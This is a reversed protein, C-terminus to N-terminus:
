SWCLMLLTRRTQARMESRVVLQLLRQLQQPTQQQRRRSNEIGDSALLMTSGCPQEQGNKASAAISNRLRPSHSFNPGNKRKRPALRRDDHIDVDAIGVRLGFCLCLASARFSCGPRIKHQSLTRTTLNQLLQPATPRWYQPYRGDWALGLHEFCARWSTGFYRVHRPIRKCFVDGTKTIPTLQLTRWDVVNM